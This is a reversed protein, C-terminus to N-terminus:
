IKMELKFIDPRSYHGDTDLTIKEEIIEERDIEAYFVGGKSFNQEIILKADPAIITSGGNMIVEKESGPIEKLLEIGSENKMKLSEWGGIIEGKTLYTGAAAVFCRGEFAYHRSALLHIDHVSPWVAAHIVENFAHMYSRTLPMWHEWCILGGLVGFDAYHVKISNGEGRGWIMRETYTPILKRHITYNKGNKDLYLLSNYLTGKDVENIGMVIYMKHKRAMSLLQLFEEGPVELSNKVLTKFLSKSPKYGWIAANPSSDIWVPYGPLWTEPFVIVNTGEKAADKIIREAKDISAKLNLFVPAYQVVAIKVFRNEKEARM